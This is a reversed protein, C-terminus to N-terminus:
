KIKKTKESVVGILSHLAGSQTIMNFAAGSFLITFILTATSVFGDMSINFITLPNVPQQKIFHFSEPDVVMRGSADEVRVYEGAPIIWTLAVAILIVILLIVLTHPFKKKEVKQM